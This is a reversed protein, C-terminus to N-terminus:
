RHPKRRHWAPFAHRHQARLRRNLVTGKSLERQFGINMQVSRPTLYNPAYISSIPLGNAVESGIYGPNPGLPIPSILSRMPRRSTRWASRLWTEAPCTASVAANPIAQGLGSACLASGGPITQVSGDGFQVPGAAGGNCPTADAFFFTGTQLRPGRDFLVNNFIANEYYLGAGARIVTKGDKCPDWAVGLQPGFNADPQHVPNGFGPMVQNLATIAPLDSDTRGTDRVYRVGYQLTFNSKIKWSDGVYFAVRNDPGNGGFPQGFAPKESSYGEGNGILLEDATYNLPCSDGTQGGPCTLNANPDIGGFNLALPANAFFSAFGGGHIHNYAFGYRFIHSGWIRSGDYKFQHDSQPTEPADPSPGTSLNSVLSDFSVPFESFPEGSGRVADTIKNQFKLYEFRISHTWAGTTWDAGDVDNTIDENAFFSYSPPGFPPILYNTFYGYRYFIHLSKTAQWDVRGLLDGEKFPSPFAGAFSQFPPAPSVGAGAHQLTREGDAFFYLKDKIVPGGVNGGEQGRSAAGPCNRVKM